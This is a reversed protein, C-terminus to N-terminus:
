TLYRIRQVKGRRGALKQHTKHLRTAWNSIVQAECAHLDADRKDEGSDDDSQQEDVIPKEGDGDSLGYSIIPAIRIVGSM